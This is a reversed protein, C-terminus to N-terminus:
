GHDKREPSSPPQPPQIPPQEGASPRYCLKELHQPPAESRPGCHRGPPQALDRCLWSRTGSDQVRFNVVKDTGDLRATLTGEHIKEIIALDRNAVGPDRSPATFQLRDGKAFHCGIKRLAAPVVLRYQQRLKANGSVRRQPSNSPVGSPSSSTRAGLVAGSGASYDAEPTSLERSDQVNTPSSRPANQVARASTDRARLTALDDNRIRRFSPLKM